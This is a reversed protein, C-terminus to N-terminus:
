GKPKPPKAPAAPKAPKAPEKPAEEPAQAAVAAIDEAPVVVPIIGMDSTGGFMSGLGASQGPMTRLLVIGVPKGNMAFVPAGFPAEPGSLGVVYFKRPKEVVAQIRELSGFLARNAVKGLRHLIMVQDLMDAASSEKLDLAVAPSALKQAPRIFALDLDKDRLVIKAPIETGDSSRIKVDTVESTLESREESGMMQSYTDAPNAAALSVVTLGSPDVVTGTVESKNERTDSSGGYSMGIKVVLMVRVVANGWKAAIERGLAADDAAVASVLVAACMVSAMAIGIWRRECTRM